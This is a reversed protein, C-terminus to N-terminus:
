LAKGHNSEKLVLERFKLQEKAKKLAADAVWVAIRERRKDHELKNSIREAEDKLSQTANGYWM